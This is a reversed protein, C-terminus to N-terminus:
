RSGEIEEAPSANFKMAVWARAQQRADAGHFTYLVDRGEMALWAREGSREREGEEIYIYAHKPLHPDTPEVPPEPAETVTEPEPEPEPIPKPDTDIRPADAKDLERKAEIGGAMVFAVRRAVEITGCLEDYRTQDILPAGDPGGIEKRDIPKGFVYSLVGMCASYAVKEDGADMLAKLRRKAKPVLPRLAEEVEKTRRNKSGRKRGGTKPYGRPRGPARALVDAPEPPNSVGNGDSRATRAEVAPPVASVADTNAQHQGSNGMVLIYARLVSIDIDIKSATKRNLIVSCAAVVALLIVRRPKRDTETRRLSM